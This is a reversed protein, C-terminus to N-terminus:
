APWRRELAKVRSALEQHEDRRVMADYLRDLRHNTEDLRRNTADLRVNFADIRAGLEKRLAEIRRNTDDIRAGLERRLADIRGGLAEWVAEIRRSHDMLRVNMDDQRKSTVALPGDFEGSGRRRLPQMALAMGEKFAARVEEEISM